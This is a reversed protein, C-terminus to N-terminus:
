LTKIADEICERATAKAENLTSGYAMAPLWVLDGDSYWTPDTSEPDRWLEGVHDGDVFVMVAEDGSENIGIKSFSIRM